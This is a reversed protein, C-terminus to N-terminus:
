LAGGCDHVYLNKAVKCGTCSMPLSLKVWLYRHVDGDQTTHAFNLGADAKRKGHLPGGLCMISEPEKEGVLDVGAQPEPEGVM